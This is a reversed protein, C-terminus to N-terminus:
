FASDCSLGDHARIHPGRPVMLRWVQPGKQRETPAEFGIWSVHSHTSMSIALRIRRQMAAVAIRPVVAAHEDVGSPVSVIGPLQVAYVDVASRDRGTENRFSTIGMKWALQPPQWLAGIFM